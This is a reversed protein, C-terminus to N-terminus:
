DEVNKVKKSKLFGEEVQWWVDIYINIIDPVFYENLENEQITKGNNRNCMVAMTGTASLTQNLITRETIYWAVEKESTDPM